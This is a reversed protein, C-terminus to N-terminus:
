RRQTRSEHWRSVLLVVIASLTVVVFGITPALAAIRAESGISPTVQWIGTEGKEGMAWQCLNLAAHVGLPCAIGRTAIAAAGFLLASPFVGLAANSLSWGYLLHTLAFALAVILQAWWSGLSETLTFLPYARFGIEEMAGRALAAGIVILLTFATPQATRSFELPGAILSITLLMTAYVAVGLLVGAVFRRPSTASWRLGVSETTRGERRLLWYTLALLGITSVTGWALRALRPPLFGTLFGFAALIVLYGVWFGGVHGAARGRTLQTM